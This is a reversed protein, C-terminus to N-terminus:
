VKELGRKFIKKMEMVLKEIKEHVGEELDKGVGRFIEEVEEDEIGVKPILILVEKFLRNEEGDIHRRM